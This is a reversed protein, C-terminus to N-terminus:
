KKNAELYDLFGQTELEEREEKWGELFHYKQHCDKCLFALEWIREDDIQENGVNEYSNHHVHLNHVSGCYRCEIKWGQNIYTSVLKSKKILWDASQLYKKYDLKNM